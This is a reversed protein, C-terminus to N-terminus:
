LRFARVFTLILHVIFTERRQFHHRRQIEQISICDVSMYVFLWHIQSIDSQNNRYSHISDVHLCDGVNSSNDSKCVVLKCTSPSADVHLLLVPSLHHMALYGPVKSLHFDLDQIFSWLPFCLIFIIFRLCGKKLGMSYVGFASRVM